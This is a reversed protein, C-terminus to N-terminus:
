YWVKVDPRMDERTQPVDAYSGICEAASRSVRGRHVWVRVTTETAMTIACVEKIGIKNILDILPTTCDKDSM